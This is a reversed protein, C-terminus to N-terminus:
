PVVKTPGYVARRIVAKAASTRSKLTTETVLFLTIETEADQFSTGRSSFSLLSRFVKCRPSFRVEPASARTMGGKVARSFDPGQCCLM